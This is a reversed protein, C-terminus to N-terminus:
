KWIDRELGVAGMCTHLQDFLLETCAGLLENLGEEKCVWMNPGAKAGRVVSAAVRQKAEFFYLPTCSAVRGDNLHRSVCLRRCFSITLLLTRLAPELSKDAAM